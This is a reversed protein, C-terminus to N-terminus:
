GPEVGAMNVGFRTEGTCGGSRARDMSAAYGGRGTRLMIVHCQQSAPRVSVRGGGRLTRGPRAAHHAEVAQVTSSALVAEHTCGEWM